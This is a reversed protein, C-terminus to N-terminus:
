SFLRFYAEKQSDVSYKKKITSLGNKRITNCLENNSLLTELINQWDDSTSALYGNIGTQIIDSNVGVPSMVSPIGLAMYQLGKFGCKGKTWIDDELPMIGIDFTNLDEIETEKNWATYQFSNLPLQPNHNSIVKFIINHKSEIRQIIPVVQDLYKETSHTGTWGITIPASENKLSVIPKHYSTDITTPLLIVHNNYQSAYNALYNNGCSIKYSWKCILKVKSHYKVISAIKNEKSTNPLWIADDFDYIIKKNLVKAIIWEFIPPGIPSAERHIFVFDYQKLTFLLLFRNIFGKLIGTTKKFIFGPKYLIAWTAEDIFSLQTIDIKEELFTIYQEFRFRQSPAKGKPYPCLIVVKM